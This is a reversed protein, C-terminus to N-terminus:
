MEIKAKIWKVGEEHVRLISQPVGKLVSNAQMEGLSIPALGKVFRFKIALTPKQCLQIIDRYRYVTRSGVYRAVANPDDSRFTDEVVGLATIGSVDHSRYFFVNDGPNVQRISSHCLYAKKISNGCPRDPHFLSRQDELEPFLVKHYQPKIPIIFTSNGRFVAIRPGFRIHFDLPDLSEIDDSSFLFSKCVIKEGRDTTSAAVAFGFSEAFAILGDYKPLVTFYVNRYDNQEAYDFAAKLLLEGYRNGSCSESVKFTCLKLTKGPQGTPLGKERKFILIGALEPNVQDRIIYAERHERKCKKLWEDFVPQYDERLSSFIEDQEDLEHVYAKQIAPPAPPCEDFFDRLLGIADQLLLVRAQIGLGRAKRHVGRDESVLFDVADAKVAALYCNDVYANSGFEPSGVVSTDLVSPDPPAPISKYRKILKRRIEARERNEDKELDHEIAPHICLTNGSGSTLNHLLVANDTNIEVDIYSGPELPLVINTDILLNM